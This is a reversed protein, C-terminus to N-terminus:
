PNSNVIGKSSRRLGKVEEISFPPTRRHIVAHCNPCVPRLDKIPDVSYGEQIGSLQRLHHVHIFGRAIDGYADEFNVGCVCCSTGFHALCAARARPDREYANVTVRKLAGEWFKDNPTIEDAAEYTKLGLKQLHTRWVEELEDTADAPISMGSAQPTWHVERLNGSNLKKLNLIESEPRLLVDFRATIYWATKGPISFHKAKFPESTAIGVGIIGKPEEGLKMLFVRDDAKIRRTVGCSWRSELFGDERAYKFDEEFDDWPWRKPNWTLLYTTM